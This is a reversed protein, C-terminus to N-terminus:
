AKLLSQLIQQKLKDDWECTVLRLACEGFARAFKSESTRMEELRSYLENADIHCFRRTDRHRFASDIYEYEEYSLNVRPLIYNRRIREQEWFFRARSAEGTSVGGVRFYAVESSAYASRLESLFLDIAYKWMTIKFSEDYRVKDFCHSRCLLTQHCYPSGFFVTNMNGSQNGVIHGDADVFGADAYAYDAKDRGIAEVLTSIAGPALFDDSNLFLVYEGVATSAGKNMANYIGGDPESLWYDIVGAKGLEQLYDVTGDTSAGDIVIHSLRERGYDQAAVSALMKEFYHRRKNRLTDKVITVITVLETGGFGSRSTRLLGGERRMKNLKDYRPNLVADACRNQITARCLREDKQEPLALYAHVLRRARSDALVKHLWKNAEACNEQTPSAGGFLSRLSQNFLVNGFYRVFLNENEEYRGYKELVSQIHRIGLILEDSVKRHREGRDAFPAPPIESAVGVCVSEALGLLILPMWDDHRNSHPFDDVYRNLLARSFLKNDYHLGIDLPVTVGCLAKRMAAAGTIIQRNLMSSNERRGTEPVVRGAKWVAVDSNSSRAFTALENLHQQGAAANEDLFAVYDGRARKIGVQKLSRNACGDVVTIDFGADM